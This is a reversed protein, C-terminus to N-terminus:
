KLGMQAKSVLQDNQFMANMNAGSWSNGTWMYMITKFGGLDSSSLEEGGCGLISVAQSYSMGSQLKDYKEKTVKCAAIASSPLMVTAVLFCIVRFM